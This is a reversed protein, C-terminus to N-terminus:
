QSQINLEVKGKFIFTYDNKLHRKLMTTLGYSGNEICYKKNGVRINTKMMIVFMNAIVCDKLFSSTKIDENIKRKSLLNFKLLSKLVVINQANEKKLM